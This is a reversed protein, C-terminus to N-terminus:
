RWANIFQTPHLSGDKPLTLMEMDPTELDDEKKKNYKGCLGFTQFYDNPAPTIQVSM